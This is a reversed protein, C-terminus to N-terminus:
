PNNLPNRYYGPYSPPLHYHIHESPIKYKSVYMNECLEARAELELQTSDLKLELKEVGM